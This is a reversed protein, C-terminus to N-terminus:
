WRLVGAAWTLGAGFGAILIRDGRELQGSQNMEHLTIPISAAATNGYRDLNVVVKSEDLGLEDAAADIIRRNAQHFVFWDIEELATNSDTLVDRSIQPILRVAWKFVTRGDMKLYQENNDVVEQCIPKRSGGGPIVLCSALEGYSALRYALLGSANDSDPNPDAEVLTAAAGDGFLPYTKKDRPDIVMSMSEAGIVLVKRSNGTRLFQGAVSLGYVYGSCAANLDFAAAHTCGLGAQVLCCTPPTYHDPTMTAVVILDIEDPDTNAAALCERSAALALDSTAQGPQVHYRSRIGTRQVIWDSDCGLADLAENPIPNDPAQMGTAVIRIGPVSQKFTGVPHEQQEIQISM